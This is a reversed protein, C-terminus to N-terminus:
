EGEGFARLLGSLKGRSVPLVANVPPEMKVEWDRGDDRRRIELVRRFNVAFGDHIRVFGHRKLVPMIEGLSRVDRLRDRGYLRIWVEDGDAELYYIDEPDLARRVRERLHILVRADSM